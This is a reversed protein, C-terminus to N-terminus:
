LIKKLFNTIPKEIYKNIMISIAILAFISIAIITNNLLNINSLYNLLLYCYGLNLLYLVYSADGLKIFFQPIKIKKCNELAVLSFVIFFSPLAIQLIKFFRGEQFPTLHVFIGIILLVIATLPNIKKYTRYVLIGLCFELFHISWIAKEILIYNKPLYDSLVSYFSLILLLYFLFYFKKSIILLSAIFYFLLEFCLTWGSIMCFMLNGPILLFSKVLYISSYNINCVNFSIFFLSILWYMPYIRICRSKIFFLVDKPTKYKLLSISIVFGSIIFFIDVGINGKSFMFKFNSHTDFHIWGSIHFLFVYFASIGRLFQIANFKM